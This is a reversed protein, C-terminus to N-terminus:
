WVFKLGLQLQRMNTNTSTAAGFTLPARAAEVDSNGM